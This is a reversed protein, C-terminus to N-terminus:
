PVPFSNNFFSRNRLAKRPIQATRTGAEGPIEDLVIHLVRAIPGMAISYWRDIMVWDSRREAHHYRREQSRRREIGGDLQYDLDHAKRRDEGTRRDIMSSRQMSEETKRRPREQSEMSCTDKKKYFGSPQGTSMRFDAKGSKERFDAKGSKERFDAKGSERM